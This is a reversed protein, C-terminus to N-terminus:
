RDTLRREPMEAYVGLALGQEKVQGAVSGWLLKMEDLSPQETLKKGQNLNDTIVRRLSIKPRAFGKSKAEYPQCSFFSYMGQLPNDYSVGFYLRWTERSDAAACSKGEASPDQYGPIITVEEYEQSIAGALVRRYSARAHDMWHDVVFVTDLVFVNRGECSGFLIVSGRSLYRLQTKHQQKRQQCWTYHFQKGFVFPDTNQLGDYSKPMVYYPEYIFRPGRPIPDDIKREVRSEPEWEGWFLMQGKEVRADAVYSGTQKLFKRKHDSRNWSKILGHDPKHEGGPHIFQVFCLKNDM